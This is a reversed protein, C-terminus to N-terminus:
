TDLFFWKLPCPKCWFVAESPAKSFHIRALNWANKTTFVGSATLDWITLDDENSVYISYHCIDNIIASALNIESSRSLPNKLAQAVTLGLAFNFNKYWRDHCFHISGKGIVWRIHEEAQEKVM